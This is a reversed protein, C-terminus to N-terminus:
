ATPQQTRTLVELWTPANLAESLLPGQFEDCGMERLQDLQAEETVGSAGVRLGLRHGLAVIAARLSGSADDLPDLAQCDLRLEALPLQALAALSCASTAVGDLALLFGAETYGHLHPMASCLERGLRQPTQAALPAVPCLLLTLANAELGCGHVERLLTQLLREQKLPTPLVPVSLQPVALGASRWQRLHRCATRVTWHALAEALGSEEALLLLESGRWAPQEAPEWLLVAEVGSLAGGRVEARPQFHLQLEDAMIAHRLRAELALRRQARNELERAYFLYANRGRSRAQHWAVDAARQLQSPQAGDHPFIALGAHGHVALTQGELPLPRSLTDLMQRVLAEAATSREIRPLVVLMGDGTGHVTAQPAVQQLLRTLRRQLHQLVQAVAHEGYADGIDDLRAVGLRVLAGLGSRRQAEEMAASLRQQLLASGRPAARRPAPVPAPVPEIPAADEGPALAVNEPPPVLPAEDLALDADGRWLIAPVTEEHLPSSPGPWAPIPPTDEPAALAPTAPPAQVVPDPGQGPGQASPRSASWRQLASLPKFLQSRLSRPADTHM